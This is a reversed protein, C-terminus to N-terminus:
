HFLGICLIYPHSLLTNHQHFLFSIDEYSFGHNFMKHKCPLVFIALCIYNLSILCLFMISTKWSKTVLTLPTKLM